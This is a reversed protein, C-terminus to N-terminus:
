LCHFIINCVPPPDFQINKKSPLTEVEVSTSYVGNGANNVAAVKVTYTTSPKLNLINAIMVSDGSVFLTDFNVSGVERYQVSYGIIDGNHHLCVVPGWHVTITTTYVM